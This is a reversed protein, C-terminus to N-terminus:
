HEAKKITWNECGYMFVPFFVYNPNCPDKKAFYHRHKKIHQRAYSQDYRKELPCDDELKMAATVM